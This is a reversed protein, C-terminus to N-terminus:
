NPDCYRSIVAKPEGELLLEVARRRRFETASEISTM